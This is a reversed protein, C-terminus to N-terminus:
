AGEIRLQRGESIGKLIRCDNDERDEFGGIDGMSAFIFVVGNNLTLWPKSM